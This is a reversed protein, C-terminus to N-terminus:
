SSLQKSRYRCYLVLLVMLSGLTVSNAVIIVADNLHVGYMIWLTVGAMLQLITVVSVDRASKTRAVKVIQPIFACMTLSAASIGVLLWM